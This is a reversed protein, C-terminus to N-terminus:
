RDLRRHSFLGPESIGIAVRRARWWPGNVAREIDQFGNVPRNSPHTRVRQLITEDLWRREVLVSQNSWNIFRSDTRWNGNESRAVAGPQRLHPNTEGYVASAKLSRAKGPRLLRRLFAHWRPPNAPLRAGALPERVPFHAVYKGLRSFKEGPDRRSRMRFVPLDHAAMDGLASGIARMATQRTEVLPCDNELILLHDTDAIRVLAEVGGFIGSNALSGHAELGFQAALARDGESIEQFYIIKRGFLSFLDERAYTELSARLTDPARWSLIGLTVTEFPANM